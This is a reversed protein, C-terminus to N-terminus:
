EVEFGQLEVPVDSHTVTLTGSTFVADISGVGDDFTEFFEIRLIGDAGVQFETGGAVLDLSGTSPGCGAPEPCPANVASFPRFQYQVSSSDGLGIAMESGRTGVQDSARGVIASWDLDTVWRSAGIPFTLVVNNTSGVGDFSWTCAGGCNTGTTNQATLDVTVTQSEALGAALGALAVVLWVIGPKTM